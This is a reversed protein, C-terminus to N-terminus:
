VAGRSRLEKEIAAIEENYVRCEDDYEAQMNHAKQAGIHVSTKNFAFSHMAELDSLAERLRELESKLEELTMDGTSKKM